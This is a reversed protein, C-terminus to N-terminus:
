NKAAELDAALAEDEKPALAKTAAGLGEYGLRQILNEIQINSSPFGVHEGDIGVVSVATMAINLATQPVEGLIKTLRYFQVPDVRRVTLQRGLSDTVTEGAPRNAVIAQSPTPAQNLPLSPTEGPALVKVSTM